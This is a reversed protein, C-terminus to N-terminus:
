ILFWDPDIFKSMTEGYTRVKKKDDIQFTCREGYVRSLVISSEEGDPEVRIINAMNDGKLTNLSTHCIPCFFEVVDGSEIELTESMAVTYNGVEEHLLVLGKKKRNKMCQAALIINRRANISGRCHPCLYLIKM